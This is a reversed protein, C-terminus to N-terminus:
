FHPPTNYEMAGIVIGALCKARAKNLHLGVALIDALREVCKPFMATEKRVNWNFDVSTMNMTIAKQEIPQM